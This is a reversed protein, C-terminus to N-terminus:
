VATVRYLRHKYHMYNSVIMVLYTLCDWSDALSGSTLSDQYKYLGSLVIFILIYSKMIQARKHMLRYLQVIGYDVHIRATSTKGYKTALIDTSSPIQCIPVM